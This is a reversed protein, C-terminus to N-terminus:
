PPRIGAPGPLIPLGCGSPVRETAPVGACRKRPEGSPVRLDGSMALDKKGLRRKDKRTAEAVGRQRISESPETEFGSCHAMLLGPVAVFLLEQKGFSCFARM